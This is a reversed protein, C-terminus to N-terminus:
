SVATGYTRNTSSAGLIYIHAAIHSVYRYKYSYDIYTYLLMYCYFTIFPVTHYSYLVLVVYRRTSLQKGKSQM